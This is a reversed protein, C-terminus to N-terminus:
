SVWFSCEAMKINVAVGNKVQISNNKVTSNFCFQSSDEEHSKEISHCKMTVLESFLVGFIIWLHGAARYERFGNNM